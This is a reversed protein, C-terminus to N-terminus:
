NGERLKDLMEQHGARTAELSRIQEQLKETDTGSTQSLKKHLDEIYGGLQKITLERSAIEDLTSADKSTEGTPTQESM